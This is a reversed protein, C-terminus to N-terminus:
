RLASTMQIRGEGEPSGEKRHEGSVHQGRGQRCVKGELLSTAGHAVTPLFWWLKSSTTHCPFALCTMPAGSNGGLVLLRLMQCYSRFLYHNFFLAAIM